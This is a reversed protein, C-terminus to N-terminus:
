KCSLMGSPATPALKKVSTSVKDMLSKKKEEVEKLDEINEWPLSSTSWHLLNFGLIEMDGRRTIVLFCHEFNFKIM